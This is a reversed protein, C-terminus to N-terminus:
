AEGKVNQMMKLRALHMNITDSLEKQLEPSKLASESSSLEDLMFQLSNIEDECDNILKGLHGVIFTALNQQAADSDLNIQINGKMYLKISEFILARFEEILRVKTTSGESM